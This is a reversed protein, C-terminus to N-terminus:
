TKGFQDTTTCPGTENHTILSEYPRVDTFVLISHNGKFLTFSGIGFLLGRSYLAAGSALRRLGKKNLVCIFYGWDRPIWEDCDVLVNDSQTYYGVYTDRMRKLAEKHEHNDRAGVLSVNSFKIDLYEERDTGDRFIHGMMAFKFESGMLDDKKALYTMAPGHLIFDGIRSKLYDFSYNDTMMNQIYGEIRIVMLDHLPSHQKIFKKAHSRGHWLNEPMDYTEELPVVQRACSIKYPTTRFRTMGDDNSDNLLREKLACVHTFHRKFAFKIIQRFPNYATLIRDHEFIVGNLTVSMDSMNKYSSDTQFDSYHKIIYDYNGDHHIYVLRDFWLDSQNPRHVRDPWRMFLVPRSACAWKTNEEELKDDRYHKAQDPPFRPPPPLDEKWHSQYSLAFLLAIGFVIEAITPSCRFFFVIM